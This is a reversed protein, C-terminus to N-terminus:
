RGTGKCRRASCPVSPGGCGCSHGQMARASCPVAGGLQARADSLPAAGASGAGWSAGEADSLPARCLSGCRLQRGQMATASCPVPGGATGKCRQASCPVPMALQAQMAALSLLGIAIGASNSATGAPPSDRGRFHCLRLANEAAHCLSSRVDVGDPRTRRTRAPPRVQALPLERRDSSDTRAQM